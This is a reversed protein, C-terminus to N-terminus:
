KFQKKLFIHIDRLEMSYPILWDTGKLSIKKLYNNYELMSEIEKLPNSPNVIIIAGYKM